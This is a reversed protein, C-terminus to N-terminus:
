ERRDQLHYYKGGTVTTNIREGYLLSYFKEYVTDSGMLLLVVPVVVIVVMDLMDM